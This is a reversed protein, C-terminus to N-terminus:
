INEHRKVKVLMAAGFAAAAAAEEEVKTEFAFSISNKFDTRTNFHHPAYVTYELPIYTVISM